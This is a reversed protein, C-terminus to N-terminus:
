RPRRTRVERLLERAERDNIAASATAQDREWSEHGRVLDLAEGAHREAEVWSASRIAARARRLRADSLNVRSARRTDPYRTLCLRHWRDAEDLRELELATRALTPLNVMNLFGREVSPRLVDYAKQWRGTKANLFGTMDRFEGVAPCARVLAEYERLAEPLKLALIHDRATRAVSEAGPLFPIMGGGDARPRRRIEMVVFGGNLNDLTSSAYATVSYRSLYASYVSARSRSWELGFPFRYALFEAGVFNYALHTVGLQRLRRGIEEPGRADRAAHHLVSVRPHHESVIRRRCWLRRDEGVLLIRATVPLRDNMWRMTEYWTTHRRDLAADRDMRGTLYRTWGPIMTGSVALWVMATGAISSATRAARGSAGRPELLPTLSVAALACVAPVIAFVYRPNRLTFLWVIWTLLVPIGILRGRGAAGAIWAFPLLAFVVPSGVRPDGFVRWASAPLDAPGAAAEPRFAEMLRVWVRASEADWRPSSIWGALFPYAPNGTFCFNELCWAAPYLAMLLAAGAWARGPTRPGRASRIALMAIPLVTIWKIAMAQGALLAAAVLSRREGHSREVLCLMVGTVAAIGGLDNKGSWGLGIVLGLGTVWAAAWGGARVSGGLALAMARTLGALVVIWAVNLSKVAEIGGASWLPVFLMEVGRSLHWLPHQLEDNIKHILAYHEAQAVHYIREDSHTDPLRSLLFAATLNAGTLVLPATPRWRIGRFWGSGALARLGALVAVASIVRLVAPQFLGLLGAGHLVASLAGWGLLCTTAPGGGRPAHGIWRGLGRGVGVGGALIAAVAIVGSGHLRGARLWMDFLAPHGPVPAVANRIAGGSLDEGRVALTMSLLAWVAWLWARAAVGGPHM